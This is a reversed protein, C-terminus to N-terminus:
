NVDFGSVNTDAKFIDQEAFMDWEKTKIKIDIKKEETQIKMNPLLPPTLSEEANKEEEVTTITVINEDKELKEIEKMDKLHNKEKEVTPPTLLSTATNSDESQVGM